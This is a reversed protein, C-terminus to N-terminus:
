LMQSSLDEEIGKKINLPAKNFVFFLYIMDM